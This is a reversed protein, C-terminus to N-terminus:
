SVTDEESGRQPGYHPMFFAARATSDEAAQNQVASEPFSIVITKRFAGESRVSSRM